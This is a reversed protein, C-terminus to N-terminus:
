SIRRFLVRKVSELILIMEAFVRRASYILHDNFLSKALRDTLILPKRPIVRPQKFSEPCRFELALPFNQNRPKIVRFIARKPNPKRSMYVLYAPTTKSNRYSTYRFPILEM